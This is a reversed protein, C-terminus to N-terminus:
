QAISKPHMSQDSPSMWKLQGSALKMLFLASLQARGVLSPLILFERDSHIAGGRPGLTDINPLGWAALKNGDCVGGTDAWEVTQGLADGCARLHGFLQLAADSMPKPPCHFSGHLEATLGDRQNIRSTLARLHQELEPAHAQDTIRINIRCVARDPVTNIATGGHIQGVNITAGDFQGNLAHVSQVLDALAVIASRGDHFARGAHAAQGCVVVTFNGSGKRAAAFLGDPSISPEYLLGLDNRAAAQRLLDISGPSGIEEDPNILVEWTLQDAVDSRQLAELAVLIIALGGKADAVGPGNITDADIERVTQFPQDPGYVTDMHINLLVRTPGASEHHVSLAQGSPQRVTQGDDTITPFPPLDIRATQANLQSFAHDLEDTMAALGPRHCSGSNINSWREVLTRMRPLQDAIWQLSSDFDPM